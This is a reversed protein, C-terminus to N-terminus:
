GRLKRSKVEDCWDCFARHIPAVNNSDAWGAFGIFGDRNFSICERHAYYEGDVVFFANILGTEKDVNLRTKKYNLVMGSTQERSKELEMYLFTQLLLLEGVGIDKYSLGCDLFHGRADNNKM